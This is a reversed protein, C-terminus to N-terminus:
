KASAPRPGARPGPPFRGLVAGAADRLQCQRAADTGAEGPDLLSSPEVETEITVGGALPARRRARRAPPRDSAAPTPDIAAGERGTPAASVWLVPVGGRRGVHVLPRGDSARM